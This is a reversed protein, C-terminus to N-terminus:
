FDSELDDVELNTFQDVDLLCSAYADLEAQSLTAPKPTPDRPPYSVRTTVSPQPLRTSSSSGSASISAIQRSSAANLKSPIPKAMDYYPVLQDTVKVSEPIVRSITSKNELDRTLQVWDREPLEPKLTGDNALRDACENGEIGVHGRVHKFRVKPGARERAYLLAALYRILEANKVPQGNATRFGNVSWKPLWSEFCQISYSSDTKIMLPQQSFPATELVRVIAILEARNNTQDGPCREAINGPEDEDVSVAASTHSAGSNSSTSPVSTSAVWPPSKIAPLVTSSSAGSSPPKFSSERAIFALAETETNLKKFIAGHFNKVQAECEERSSPFVDLLDGAYARQNPLQQLVPLQYYVIETKCASRQSKDFVVPWNRVISERYGVSQISLNIYLARLAMGIIGMFHIFIGGQGMGLTVLVYVNAVVIVLWILCGLSTMFKGSSFDVFDQTQLMEPDSDVSKIAPPSSAELSDLPNISKSGPSPKRVRMIRSSSTLYILPFTIFPLVISLIVQSAVLLFNIGNAGLVIAITMSPILGLLRTVLRRVIPSVKWNLFGESVSQGAVTAIISASQGSALLALAFLLAAAKGITNNILTHTDFLSASSESGYAGSGYYFVASALILIELTNNERHEHSKPRAGLEVRSVIFLSRCNRRIVRRFCLLPERRSGVERSEREHANDSLQSVPAVLEKSLRDQTALHSGLFLSHPMVTAGLIGVSTYLAGNAFLAQSPVLGDFAQGWVVTVRAIIIAICILVAFVLAAIIWEFIRVPRARLPNGLALILLVDAGTILVGAWLPLAPFLLCLAIASGLLETLDTSVIAVESLVYLPYLVAWRWLKTHHPRGHFLIRCHSALYTSRNPFSSKGLGTVVGLRCALVQLFAAFLGALVVVFLLKYGYQSGAQLDVGWSGPDFYAVSCVIGVGTYNQAHHCVAWGLHQLRGTWHKEPSTNGSGIQPDRNSQNPSTTM